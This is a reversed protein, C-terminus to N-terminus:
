PVSIFSENFPQGKWNVAYNIIKQCNQYQDEVGLPNFMEIVKQKSPDNKYLNWFNKNM